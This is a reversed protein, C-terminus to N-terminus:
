SNRALYAKSHFVYPPFFQATQVVQLGNPVRVESGGVEALYELASPETRGFDISILWRKRSANWAGGTTKLAQVLTECGSASAYAVAAHFEDHPVTALTTIGELIKGLDGSEPNQAYLRHEYMITLTERGGVRTLIESVNG